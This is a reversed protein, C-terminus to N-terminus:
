ILEIKGLELLEEVKPGYQTFHHTGKEHPFVDVSGEEFQVDGLEELVRYFVHLGLESRGDAPTPVMDYPGTYKGDEDVYKPDTFTVCFHNYIPPLADIVNEEFLKSLATALGRAYTSEAASLLPPDAELAERQTDYEQQTIDDDALRKELKELRKEFRLNEELAFHVPFKELKRMRARLYSALSFRVRDVDLTLEAAFMGRVTADRRAEAARETQEKVRESVSAVLEDKFPLLTPSFKEDLWARRIAVGEERLAANPDGGALEASLSFGDDM